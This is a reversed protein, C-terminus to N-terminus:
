YEAALAGLAQGTLRYGTWATEAVASVSLYLSIAQQNWNLAAWQLRGYGCDIALEALYALMKRGIGQSRVDEQVFLDELYIGPKGLFTSFSRFFIAYGVLRGGLEAVIAEAARDEGFLWRRLDAETATVESALHEFAALEKIFVLLAAADDETAGRVHLGPVSRSAM